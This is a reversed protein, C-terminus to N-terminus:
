VASAVAFAQLFFGKEEWPLLRADDYVKLDTLAALVQHTNAKHHVQLLSMAVDRALFAMEPSGVSGDSVSAEHAGGKCPGEDVATLNRQQVARNGRARLRGAATRSHSGFGAAGPPQTSVEAVAPVGQTGSEPPHWANSGLDAPLINPDVGLGHQLTRAGGADSNDHRVAADCDPPASAPQERDLEPNKPFQHGTLRSEPGKNNLADEGVPPDHCVSSARGTGACDTVPVGPGVYTEFATLIPPRQLWAPMAAAQAACEAHVMQLIAAKQAARDQQFRSELTEMRTDLARTSGNLQGIEVRLAAATAEAETRPQMAQALEAQAKKVALATQRM